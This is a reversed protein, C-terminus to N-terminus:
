WKAGERAHVGTRKARFESVDRWWGERCLIGGRVAGAEVRGFIRKWAEPLPRSNPVALWLRLLLRKREDEPYDEFATRGHYMVHNNLLQIDGPEFDMDLALENALQVYLDLAERQEPTHRPVEPFDQSSRIYTPSFVGTFYGDRMGFIPRTDTKGCGPPQEGQWSHEWDGYFVDILDPRRRLIENHIAGASVIRSAGGSKAKRVCLLGVVDCRDSHFDLYLNTKGGRRTTSVIPGGVDKVLGLLEGTYNQSVATGLHTGIGWYVTRLDDPSYTLPLGRLMIMGRGSELEQSIRALETSFRPLPFDDKTIDFLEIGRRKVSDLAADIEALEGRSFPRLWESTRNRMEAGTWASPAEIPRHTAVEM